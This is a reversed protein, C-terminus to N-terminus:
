PAVSPNLRVESVQVLPVPGAMGTLSADVPTSSGVIGVWRMDYESLNLTRGPAVTLFAIVDSNSNWVQYKADVKPYATNASIFGVVAYTVPAAPTAVVPTPSPGTAAPTQNDAPPLKLPDQEGTVKVQHYDGADAPATGTGTGTAGAGAGATGSAPAAATGGAAPTTGTGTGTGPAGAEAISQTKRQVESIADFLRKANMQVAPEPHGKAVQELQALLPSWDIGAAHGPNHQLDTWIKAYSAQADIWVQQLKDAQSQQESIAESTPVSILSKHIYAVASPISVAVWEGRSAARDEIIEGPKLEAVIDAGLTSDSRARAGEGTVKWRKGGDVPLLNKKHVWAQGKAPFRITYWDPVPAPGVIAVSDGPSLTCAIRAKISPGYRVNARASVTATIGHLPTDAAEIPHESEGTGVDAATLCSASTALVLVMPLFRRM